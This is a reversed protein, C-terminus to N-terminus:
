RDDGPVFGPCSGAHSRPPGGLRLLTLFGLAPLVASALSTTDISGLPGATEAPMVDAHIDTDTPPNTM